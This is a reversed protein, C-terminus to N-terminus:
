ICMVDTGSWTDNGLCTRVESGLLHFGDHCVFYVENNVPVTAGNIDTRVGLMHGNAPAVLSTCSVPPGDMEREAKDAMKNM